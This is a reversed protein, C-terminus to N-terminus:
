NTRRRERFFEQLLEACEVQRVGYTV